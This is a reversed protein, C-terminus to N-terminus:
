PQLPKNEQYAKWFDPIGYGFINDPTAYNDASRRVIDIIEHATKDPLAQWLCAVMGCVLPSAFSTGSHVHMTGCGEIVWPDGLAMVDPKVRGDASPGVSSYEANVSDRTLAGVALIHSADAPVGIKKWTGRGSNGASNVLVIGKDALMSAARSILAFRGTLNCYRYSTTTDDYNHYGLSSNILDAGVSDAYEAAMVWYDEEAMTETDGDESRLLWYSAAPATGMMTDPKCTAMLSLVKTGHDLQAFIDARRERVFDATGAVKVGQLVPIRDANMFGGDIIAITMGQGRFGAEHLKIGNFLAIQHGTPGYHGTSLEDARSETTVAFLTDSLAVRESPDAPIQPETWVRKVERVFPLAAIREIIKEKTVRVVLTNCWKSCGLPEAGERVIRRVYDPSLPLDTSDVEIHQRRRREIAKPSLYERPNDLTFPTGAKNVLSVRYVSSKGTPPIFESKGVAGIPRCFYLFAILFTLIRNM